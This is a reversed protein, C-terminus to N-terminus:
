FRFLDYQTQSLVEEPAIEVLEEIIRWNIEEVNLIEPFTVNLKRSSFFEVLTKMNNLHRKEWNSNNELKDFDIKIPIDDIIGGLMECLIVAMQGVGEMMNNEKNNFEENESQCQFIPIGKDDSHHRTTNIFSTPMPKQTMQTVIGVYIKGITGYKFYNWSDGDRWKLDAIKLLPSEKMKGYDSSEGFEMTVGM